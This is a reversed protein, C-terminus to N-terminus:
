QAIVGIVATVGGCGTLLAFLLGVVGVVAFVVGAVKWWSTPAKGVLKGSEGNVLVRYVADGYRYAGIYVPLLVPKGQLNDVLTAARCKILGNESTIRARHLREMATQAAERAVSRTLESVEYPDDITGEATNVLHTEDFTGLNLLEGGTLSQSAPVLVQEFFARDRGAVPSKGSRTMASVLGAWHTDVDARWAWAPVLLRRLELKAGALDNPYWFSSKAFTKFTAQADSEAVTFAIMQEPQEFSEPPTTPVLDAADSGCFLCQPLRAGPKNVVTGGCGTCRVATLASM